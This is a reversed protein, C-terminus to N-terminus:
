PRRSARCRMLFCDRFAPPGARDSLRWVRRVLDMSVGRVASGRHADLYVATDRDVYDIVYIDAVDPCGRATPDLPAPCDWRDFRDIEHARGVADRAVIRSASQARTQSYMNLTTFPFFDVVLRSIALYSGFALVSVLTAAPRDARTRQTSGDRPEAPAVSPTEKV